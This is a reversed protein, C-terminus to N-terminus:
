WIQLLIITHPHAETHVKSSTNLQINNCPLKYELPGKNATHQKIAKSTHRHKRERERKSKRMNSSGRGRGRGRSSKGAEAGKGQKM